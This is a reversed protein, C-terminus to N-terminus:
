ALDFTTSRTDPSKGRLKPNLGPQLCKTRLVLSSYKEARSSEGEPVALSHPLTSDISSVIMPSLSELQLYLIMGATFLQLYLYTIWLMEM